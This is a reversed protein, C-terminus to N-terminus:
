IFPVESSSTGKMISFPRIAHGSLRVLLDDYRRTCGQPISGDSDDSQASGPRSTQCFSYEAGPFFAQPQGLGQVPHHMESM